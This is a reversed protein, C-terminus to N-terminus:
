KQLMKNMNKQKDFAIRSQNEYILTFFLQAKMGSFIM